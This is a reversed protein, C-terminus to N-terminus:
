SRMVKKFLEIIEEKGPIKPATLICGDELARQALHPLDEEKVGLDELWIKTGVRESLENVIQVAYAACEAESKGACTEADLLRAIEALEKPCYTLDYEMVVPLLIANCLGHALHYGAGLQHAMAHVLGLGSSGFSLGALYQGLSMKERADKNQPEKVATELNDYILQMADKALIDTLTFRGTSIYGEIAHTLADMGTQATISAPLNMMLQVDNVAIDPMAYDDKFILKRKEKEDSILFARSVESGTGATTNVAILYKGKKKPRNGGMYDRLEGGNAELIRIAKACDNASGGGVAVIADCGNDKMLRVGDDVNELTPNPMVGDYVVSEAGGKELAAQVPKLLGLKNISADTVILAKRVGERQLFPALDDLSGYGFLSMGAAAFKEAM